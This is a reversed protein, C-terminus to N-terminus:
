NLVKASGSRGHNLGCPVSVWHVGALAHAAPLGEDNIESVVSVLRTEATDASVVLTDDSLIAQVDATAAETFHIDEEVAQRDMQLTPPPAAKVGQLLWQAATQRLSASKSFEVINGAPINVRVAYLNHLDQSLTVKSVINSVTGGGQISQSEVNWSEPDCNDGDGSELELTLSIMATSAWTIELVNYAEALDTCAQDLNDTIYGDDDG